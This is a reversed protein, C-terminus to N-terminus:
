LFIFIFIFFGDRTSGSKQCFTRGRIPMLMIHFFGTNRDGEKLWLKRSNKRRSVEELLSWYRERALNREEFEKLSSSRDNEQGDWYNISTLLRGKVIGQM